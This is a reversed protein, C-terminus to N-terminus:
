LKKKNSIGKKKQIKKNKSKKEKKVRCRKGQYNIERM